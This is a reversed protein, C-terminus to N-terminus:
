ATYRKPRFTLSTTEAGDVDGSLDSSTVYAETNAGVLGTSPMNLENAESVVWSNLYFNLNGEDGVVITTAGVLEIALTQDPIGAVYRHQTDTSATVDVEAVTDTFQISTVTALHTTTSPWTVFSKNFGDNPM